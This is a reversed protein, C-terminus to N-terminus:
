NPICNCIISDVKQYWACKEVEGDWKLNQLSCFHDCTQKAKEPNPWDKRIDWGQAMYYQPDICVRGWSPSPTGFFLGVILLIMPTKKIHYMHNKGRSLYTLITFTYYPRTLIKNLRLKIGEKVLRNPIM